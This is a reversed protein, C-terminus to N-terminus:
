DLDNLPWRVIFDEFDQMDVQTESITKNRVSMQKKHMLSKKGNNLLPHWSPLGRGEHLRRYSCSPPMFFIDSLNDKTLQICDPVLVTRQQYETCECKHSNLYRCAINTYHVEEGQHLQDTPAFELEAADDDIFKNLCCKACGDCVAEWEQQTMEALSKHEWFRETLSM